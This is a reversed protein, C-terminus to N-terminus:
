FPVRLTMNLGGESVDGGFRGTASTTLTMGRGGAFSLSAVVEATDEDDVPDTNFVFSPMAADGFSAQIARGEDDFEHVWAARFEPRLTGGALPQAFSFTAGLRSQTSEEEQEGLTLNAAQAGRETFGDLEFKSYRVGVFPEVVLGAYNFGVGLNLGAGFVDADVEALATSSVGPLDITRRLEHEANGGALFGDVFLQGFLGTEYVASGYGAIWASDIEAHSGFGLRAGTSDYGVALGLATGSMPRLDFGVTVGGAGYEVEPRDPAADFSGRRGTVSIFMGYGREGAVAAGDMSMDAGSRVNRLHDSIIDAQTHLTRFSLEPLVTFSQPSLVGLGQATLSPSADLANFLAVASASPVGAFNDLAAGVAQQNQTAGATEGFPVLAFALGEYTANGALAGILTAAGTALNIRYLSTVLTNPNTLTALVEGTASIDFGVATNTAVGLSGVTFLTGTNPSVPSGNLSGQLALVGRNVDIVYLSTPTGGPVNNTYAAGAILPRTGAGSDGSAYAFSGDTGVLAGTDPNVRLNQGFTTTVRLLDVAPNFDLGVGAAPAGTLTLPAGIAFTQGTVRNILYLQGSAGLGYLLRPSAPRRDLAAIRDGPRLGTLTVSRVATGPANSNFTFLATGNNITNIQQAAAAHALALASAGALVAAARMLFTKSAM